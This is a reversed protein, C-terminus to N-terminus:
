QQAIIKKYIENTMEVDGLAQHLTIKSMDIGYEECCLKVNYKVGKAIVSMVRMGFDKFTENWKRIMNLKRAKIIVATDIANRYLSDLFEKHQGVTWEFTKAVHYALWEIDFKIGNHTLHAQDQYSLIVDLFEKMAIKPDTGEKEIMERTIGNIETIQQPIDMNHNLLWRKREKIQGGFDVRAYGIELIKSTEKQLGSTELDWVLYTQPYQIQM